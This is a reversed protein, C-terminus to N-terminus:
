NYHKRGKKDCVRHFDKHQKAGEGIFERFEDFPCSAGPGSQCQPIPRPATNAIFRV